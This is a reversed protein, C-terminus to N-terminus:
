KNTKIRLKAMMRTTHNLTSHNTLNGKGAGVTNHDLTEEKGKTEVTEVTTTTTVEVVGTTTGNDVAV